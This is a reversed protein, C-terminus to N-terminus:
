EDLCIFCVRHILTLVVAQSVLLQGNLPLVLDPDTRALLDRLKGPEQAHLVGLYIEDWQDAKVPPSREIAPQTPPPQPITAPHSAQPAAITNYWQQQMPPQQPPPAQFPMHNQPGYTPVPPNPPMTSQHLHPPQINSQLPAPPGSPSNQPQQQQQQLHRPVNSNGTLFKVQEQLARVSHELSHITSQLPVCTLMYESHSMPRIRVEQGRTAENHWSNLEAKMSVMEKRLEMLVEQQMSAAQQSHLKFFTSNLIDKIQHEIMPALASSLISTLHNAIAPRLLIKEM